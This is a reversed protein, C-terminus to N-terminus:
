LDLIERRVRLRGKGKAWKKAAEVVAYRSSTRGISKVISGDNGSRIMGYYHRADSCSKWFTSVTLTYTM